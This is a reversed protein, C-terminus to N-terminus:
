FQILSKVNHHNLKERGKLVNIELLFNCQVVVGGLNEILKCAAKATGRTALVDDHLIIREEKQIADAHIELVDMDYELSYPEKLTKSPLKGPKRIPVFGVGLKAAMLIGFFFGRSEIPVVKDIKEDGLMEVLRDVCYSTAKANNLLPMIDRFMVGSNPFDNVNRIYDVLNM